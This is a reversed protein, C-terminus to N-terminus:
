ISRPVDNTFKQAAAFKGCPVLKSAAGLLGMKQEVRLIGDDQAQIIGPRNGTGVAIDGYVFGPPISYTTSTQVSKEPEDTWFVNEISGTTKITRSYGLSDMSFRLMGGDESLRWEGLVKGTTFPSESVRCQQNDLFEVTLSLTPETPIDLGSSRDRSSINTRSGYLDNSPDKNPVGALFLDLSWSSGVLLQKTTVASGMQRERWAQQVETMAVPRTQPKPNISELQGKVRDQKSITPDNEFAGDLLDKFFNM